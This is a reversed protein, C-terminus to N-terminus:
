SHSPSGIIVRNTMDQKPLPHRKLGKLAFTPILLMTRNSCEFLAIGPDKTWKKFKAMYPAIGKLLKGYFGNYSFNQILYAYGKENKYEYKTRTQKTKLINM